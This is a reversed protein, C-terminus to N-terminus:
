GAAGSAIAGIAWVLLWIMMVLMPTATLAFGLSRSKPDRTYSISYIGRGILYVTGFGAAWIPSVFHAFIWLIPVFMVLQEATNAHIRFARDFMEHGSMAPAPVGYKARARGVKLGFYIFQLFAVVTVITVYPM